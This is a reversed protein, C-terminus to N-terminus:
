ITGKWLAPNLLTEPMHPLAHEVEMRQAETLRPLHFRRLNDRLQNVNDMGIVLSTVWSLSRVYAICLDVRDERGLKLVLNDLITGLEKPDTDLTHPWHEPDLILLGQLLVSRAHWIVDSREKRAALFHPDRWRWDLLSVPSQIHTIQADKLAKMAESPHSVSVGLRRIIGSSRLELLRKWVLGDWKDHHEWRHLLLTDICDRRLDHCSHFVSEDVMKKVCAPSADDPLDALADLKTVVNIRDLYESSLLGGIRIESEGYARATDLTTIGSEIAEQLLEASQTSTPMGTKNAIGYAMGLQATGLVLESCLSGDSLVTFPCREGLPPSVSDLRIVLESWSISGPNSVGDFVQMLRKYDGFSDLTCRLRSWTPQVDPPTFLAVNGIRRIWATVHERDHASNAGRDMKRLIGATFVEGSLGYPLGDLPSSTGLYDARSEEFAALLNEVFQGDPFVNDATLRVVIDAENLHATALVFRKLVDDQPGRFCKIGEKQLANAIGDDVAEDSTAVVTDLGTNSARLACLAVSPVGGLPLLAKAPLRTSAMRSQIVVIVQRNTEM